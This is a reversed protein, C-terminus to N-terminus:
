VQRVAQSSAQFTQLRRPTQRPGNEELVGFRPAEFRGGVWSSGSLISAAGHVLHPKLVKLQRHLFSSNSSTEALDLRCVVLLTGDLKKEARWDYQERKDTKERTRYGCKGVSYKIFLTMLSRLNKFRSFRFQISLRFFQCSFFNATRAPFQLFQGLKQNKSWFTLKKVM